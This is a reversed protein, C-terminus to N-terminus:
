KLRQAAGLRRTALRARAFSERAFGQWSLLDPHPHGGPGTEVACPIHLPYTHM